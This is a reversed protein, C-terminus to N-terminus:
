LAGRQTLFRQVALASWVVELAAFIWSSTLVAYTAAAACGVAFVAVWTPSREELGYSVVMVVAASAGFATLLTQRRAGLGNHLAM